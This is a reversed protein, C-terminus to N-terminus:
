DLTIARISPIAEMARRLQRCYRTNLNPFSMAMKQDPLRIILGEAGDYEGSIAVIQRCTERWDVNGDIDVVVM